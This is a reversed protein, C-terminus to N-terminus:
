QNAGTRKTARKRKAPPLVDLKRAAAVHQRLESTTMMGGDWAHLAEPMNGLYGDLLDLVRAIAQLQDDRNM